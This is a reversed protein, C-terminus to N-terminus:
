VKVVDAKAIDWKDFNRAMAEKIYPISAPAKKVLDAAFADALVPDTAVIVKDLRVVDRLDGGQPGHNSLYRTADIVTLEPKIFATLDVIYKSIDLHMLGRNGSSVGMLNKMSLSLGTFGHHKLVPANIFCDCEVASRLIPWNNLPSNYPLKANVVDWLNVFTVNAGKERAAKAIGSNEHCEREDNCPVDFVNVTKAGAKYCLEVLAAVVGPDTNAGYEPARDWGINPKVVVIDGKKVFRSMGGMALVAKATNDYPSAGEALVLDHDGKIKNVPRGDSAANKAFAFRLLANNVAFYAAAGSFIKLFTGRSIKQKFYSRIGYILQEM